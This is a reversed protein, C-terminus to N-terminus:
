HGAILLTCSLLCRIQPTLYMLVVLLQSVLRRSCIRLHDFLIAIFVALIIPRFFAALPFMATTIGWCIFSIFIIPKRKGKVDSYSGMIIAAITGVITTVAVMISIYLPVPAIVNYMFVNYYQNEVAWAIQGAFNILIIAFLIKRPITERM